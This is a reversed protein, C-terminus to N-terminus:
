LGVCWQRLAVTEASTAEFLIAAAFDQLPDLSLLQWRNLEEPQDVVEILKAPQHPNLSVSFKNLPFSLGFGTAKLYAEKCTWGRYFGALQDGAALSQLEAAERASFFRQALKLIRVSPDQQEIDVGVQRDATIAILAQDASHSVSFQVPPGSAQKLSPKGHEGYEFDVERADCGVCTGLLRRLVSRCVIFHRKPQPVKYRDARAIEDASLLERCAALQDDNVELAVRIVHVVDRSLRGSGQGTHDLLQQFDTLPEWTSANM